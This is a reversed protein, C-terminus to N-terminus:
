KKDSRKFIKRFLPLLPKAKYVIAYLIYLWNMSKAFEWDFDIRQIIEIFTQVQINFQSCM